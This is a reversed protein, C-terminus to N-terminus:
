IMGSHKYTPTQKHHQIRDYTNQTHSTHTHTHTHTHAPKTHTHTTRTQIRQTRIRMHASTKNSQQTSQYAVCDIQSGVRIAWHEIAEILVTLEGGTARETHQQAYTTQTTHACIHFFVCTYTYTYIHTHAYTHTHARPMYAHNAFTYKNQQFVGEKTRTTHSQSCVPGHFQVM